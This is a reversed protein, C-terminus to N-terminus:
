FLDLFTEVAHHVPDAGILVVFFLLGLTGLVGAVGPSPHDPASARLRAVRRGVGSGIVLGPRWTEAVQIRAVSVLADALVRPDGVEAAARADSAEEMAARHARILAAMVTAPYFVTSLRVLFSALGDLRDHHADEHALAARLQNFPIAEALSDSLLVRRRLVGVAHCLKPGGPVRIVAFRGRTARRGLGELAQVARHRALIAVGLHIAKLSLVGLACAGLWVRSAPVDFAHLLCLHAHHLHTECHDEHLGLMGAIPPGAAALTVAVAAAGPLIAGVLLVDARLSPAWRALWRASLLHAAAVGAAVAAGVMVAVLACELVFRVATM